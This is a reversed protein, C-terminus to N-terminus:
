QALSPMQALAAAEAACDRTPSMGLNRVALLESRAAELDTRFAANSHLAAVTAAAVSRAQVVDSHWHVNCVNRSEGYALGRALVANANPPSLEALILAWGWGVTAHGSPYSSEKAQQAQYEPTCVPAQNSLFPRPRQSFNKASRTAYGLDDRTRQLLQYLHPTNAETIPASLACSFTGATSPFSLDADLRALAWRPTDRLALSRQSIEEDLAMAASGQVPYPPLLNKSDPLAQTDLYRSPKNGPTVSAAPPNSVSACGSLMVCTLGLLWHRPPKNQPTFDPTM